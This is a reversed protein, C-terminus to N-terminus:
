QGGGAILPAIPIAVVTPNRVTQAAVDASTGGLDLTTPARFRTETAQEQLVFYSPEGPTGVTTRDLTFGFFRIDPEVFGSFGPDIVLSDDALEPGGGAAAPVAAVATRPYRALLQGRIALVLQDRRLVQDALGTTADWAALAEIDAGPDAQSGTRHDFLQRFFTARRDVPMGRWVLERSMADNLGALFAAIFAPNVELVTISDAGLRGAGPLVFQPALRALHVYMPTDFRPAVVQAALPDLLEDPSPRGPAVIRSLVRAPVTISPALAAVVEAALTSTTPLLGDRGGSAPARLAAASVEGQRVRDLLGGTVRLMSEPPLAALTAHARNSVARALQGGTLLRNVARIQGAQEWAAAILQEQQDEVVAAGLAAVTRHRPDLNLEALWGVDDVTVGAAGAYAGAYLPQALRRRSADHTVQEALYAALDPPSEGPDSGPARLLGSMQLVQDVGADEDVVSLDMRGVTDPCPQAQLLAALSVFDGQDGTSFSWSFFVPLTVSTETGSWAPTLAAGTDPTLGLAADRGAAFTPLLCAHYSRGAELPRTCVLRCLTREPRSALVDTLTAADPVSGAVQVHATAWLTSPDPLEASPLAPDAITLVSISRAPDPTVAVGDRQEVVVLSLWPRLRDNAGAATPAFAWLYSPDDFEILPWHNPEHRQYGPPPDVRVIQGPDIGVVDGPGLVTVAPVAVPVGGLSVGVALIGRNTAAASDDPVALSGAIGDRLWPLFTMGM